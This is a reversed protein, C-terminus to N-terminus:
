SPDDFIHEDERIVYLLINYQYEYIICFGIFLLSSFMVLSDYYYPSYVFFIMYYFRCVANVDFMSTHLLMLLVHGGKSGLLLITLFPVFGILLTTGLAVTARREMDMIIYSSM